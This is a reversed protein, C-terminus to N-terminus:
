PATYQWQNIIGQVKNGVTSAASSLGGQMVYLVGTAIAGLVAVIVLLEAMEYGKEDEWFKKLLSQM